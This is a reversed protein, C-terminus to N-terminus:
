LAGPSNAILKRQLTKGEIWCGGLMSIHPSKPIGLENRYLSGALNDMATAGMALSQQDVGACRDQDETWALCAFGYDEPCRIGADELVQTRKDTNSIIAEPRHERYWDIFRETDVIESFCIPLPDLIDHFSLYGMYGVSWLHHMREDGTPSLVLGIRRYGIESLRDLTTNMTQIHNHVVRNIEPQELRYGFTVCNYRSWDIDLTNRSDPLPGILLGRIKRTNLVGEFRRMNYELDALWFEEVRFGLEEARTKAGQLYDAFEPVEFWEERKEYAIVFAITEQYGVSKRTKLHQMLESIKPDLRYGMEKAVKQISLRTSEPIRPHNRLALSVTTQHLGMHKAITRASPLKEDKPM